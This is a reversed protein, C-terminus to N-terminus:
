VFYFGSMKLYGIEDKNQWEVNSYGINGNGEDESLLSIMGDERIEGRGASKNTLGGCESVAFTAGGSVATAKVPLSIKAYEGNEAIKTKVQFYLLVINGIQVYHGVAYGNNKDQAIERGDGTLLLPTYQKTNTFTSHPEAIQKWGSWEIGNYFNMWVRGMYPYAETLKVSVAQRNHYFVERYVLYDESDDLPSNAVFVGPKHYISTRLNTQGFKNNLDVYLFDPFEDANKEYFCPSYIYTSNLDFIDKKVNAVQGRVAEGASAYITEDYGKRADEVESQLVLRDKTEDSMKNLLQEVLSPDQSESADNIKIASDKCIVTDCFTFLKKEDKLVRVMLENRGVEFFSESPTFKIANNGVDCLIKKPVDSTQGLAYAVAIAYDPINYDVVNLEIPIMDTGKTVEIKEKIANRLVYINRKISEM